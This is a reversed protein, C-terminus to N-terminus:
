RKFMKRLQEGTISVRTPRGHPCTANDPTQELQELLEKAQKKTLSDGAKVASRCALYSIMKHSIADLSKPKGDQEIDDLLERLLAVYNRDQFLVPLARILFSTDQFHEIDWGLDALLPIYEQLLSSEHISLEFVGPKPFQFSSAQKKEELFTKKLQEYRIREHVAHQDYLLMGNKSPALLYLNAIQIVKGADGKEPMSLQWPLEKERLLQAAHSKTSKADAIGFSYDRSPDQWYTSQVVLGNHSFSARIAEHIHELISQQNIFRVEDKRPHVNVDVHDFPLTFYLVAIPYATKELLTGYANKISLSLRKDTVIRNNVFLFQKTPTRTTMPPKAIFGGIRLYVDEYAVPILSKYIENGLLKQLRHTREKTTPLDLITRGNHTLEFQIHPYALAISTILDISHRFETRPSKLFKKRAPLNYFLYDIEIQTGSPMGVPVTKELKNNKVVIKTGTADDKRKSQIVMRSVAAISSLAEGRFGLSGIHSLEDINELKSTTHPKFCEIIDEASMGEGNDIVSIHKLGSEELHIAISTAGADIANEVLEKVAYVPREIVEGAAIKSIVAQSLQKIKM